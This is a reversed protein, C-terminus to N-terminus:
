SRPVGTRVAVPVHSQGSLATWKARAWQTPMRVTQLSPMPHGRKLLSPRAPIGEALSHPHSSPQEWHTLSLTAKTISQTCGEEELQSVPKRSLTGMTPLSHNGRHDRDETIPESLVTGVTPVTGVRPPLVMVVESVRWLFQSGLLMRIPLTVYLPLESMLFCGGGPVVM